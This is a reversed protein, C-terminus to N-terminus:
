LFLKDFVVKDEIFDNLNNKSNKITEVTIMSDNKILTSVKELDLEGTGLHPHTDFESDIKEIDTLHYMQPNLKLFENAYEFWDISQTNASCICHGIDFCFGCGVEDLILKIEDVTAGRCLKATVMQPLPKYPKNEILARPEEFSKLQSIVEKVDGDMGGHFIIYRADLRDAFSKVEKYIEFNTKKKSADALNFGHVFHPAHIIFPIGSDKLLRWRELTQISNPVIYLEIYDFVGQLFLKKAENYYSDTNVSWLKLGIKSM